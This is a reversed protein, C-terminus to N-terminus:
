PKPPLPKSLAAAIFENLGAESNEHRFKWYNTLTAMWGTKASQTKPDSGAAAVARAYADIMRDIVINLKELAAKSEPTEPKGAYNTQYAGALTRYPGTEYAYALHYYTWPSKKWVSELQAVKLLADIAQDPATKLNLSATAYYLHALTDDKGKSLCGSLRHREQSFCSFRKAPM